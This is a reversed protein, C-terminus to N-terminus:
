EEEEVDEKAAGGEGKLGRASLFIDM